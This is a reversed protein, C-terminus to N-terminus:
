EGNFDTLFSSRVRETTGNKHFTYTQGRAKGSFVFFDFENNETAKNKTELSVGNTLNLSKVGLGEWLLTLDENKM